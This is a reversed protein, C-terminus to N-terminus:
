STVTFDRDETSTHSTQQDLQEHGYTTLSWSNPYGAAGAAKELFGARALRALMQSAQTHSKIGVADAVERNSAGPHTALYFLARRARHARPDSLVEPVPPDSPAPVHDGADLLEKARECALAVERATGARDLYPAVAVEVLSGLLSLMPEGPATVAHTQVIGLLSQMVCVPALSHSAAQPPAPWREVVLRMLQQVNHARRELAWAGAALSEVLWVRALEPRRDFLLLLDGLALRLGERWDGARDFARVLLASVQALGDDLVALFCEERSEFLDNFTRRSVGARACVVTVSAGAFARECVVAVM